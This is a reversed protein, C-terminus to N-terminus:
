VKSYTKLILAFILHYMICPPLSNQEEKIFEVEEKKFIIENIDREEQHKIRFTNSIEM